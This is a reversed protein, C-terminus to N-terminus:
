ISCKDFRLHRPFLLFSSTRRIRIAIDYCLSRSHHHRPPDRNPSPVYFLVRCSVLSLSQVVVVAKCNREYAFLKRRQDNRAGSRLVRAVQTERDLSGTSRLLIIPAHHECGHNNRYGSSTADDFDPIYVVYGYSLSTISGPISISYQAVSQYRMRFCSLRRCIIQAAFLSYYTFMALQSKDIACILHCSSGITFGECIRHM